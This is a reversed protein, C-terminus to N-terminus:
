KQSLTTTASRLKICKNPSWIWPVTCYVNCVTCKTGYLSMRFLYDPMNLKRDMKVFTWIQFKQGEGREQGKPCSTNGQASASRQGKGEQDQVAINKKRRDNKEKRMQLISIHTKQFYM